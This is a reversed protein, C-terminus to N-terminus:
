FLIGAIIEDEERGETRALLLLYVGDTRDQIMQFVKIGNSIVFAISFPYEIRMHIDNQLLNFQIEM